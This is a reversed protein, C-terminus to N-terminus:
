FVSFLIKKKQCTPNIVNKKALIFDIISKKTSSEAILNEILTVYHNSNNSNDEQSVVNYAYTFFM